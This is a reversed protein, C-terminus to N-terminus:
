CCLIVEVNTRSNFFKGKDCDDDNLAFWVTCDVFMKYRTKPDGKLTYNVRSGLKVLVSYQEKKYGKPIEFRVTISGYIYEGARATDFYEAGTDVSLPEDM